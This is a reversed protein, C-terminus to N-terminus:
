KGAQAGSMGTIIQWSDGRRQWTHTIRYTDLERVIEGDDAGRFFDRVLYHVVVVDAFATVAKRTLEYDYHENPNAHLPEIWDAIETKGVPNDSFGPWGVFREDWLNRYGELDNNKVYEWYAEELQWVALVDADAGADTDSCSTAVGLFLLSVLIVPRKM